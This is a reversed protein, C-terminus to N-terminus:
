SHTPAKPRPRPPASRALALALSPTETSGLVLWPPPPPESRAGAKVFGPNMQGSCGGQCDLTEPQGTWYNRLPGPARPRARSTSLAALDYAGGVQFTPARHALQSNAWVSFHRRGRRFNLTMATTDGSCPAMACRSEPGYGIRPPSTGHAARLPSLSKLPPTSDPEREACRRRVFEDRPSHRRLGAGRHVLCPPAVIGRLSSGEGCRCHREGAVFVEAAADALHRPPYEGAEADGQRM